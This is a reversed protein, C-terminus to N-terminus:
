MTLMQRFKNIDQMTLSITKDIMPVKLKIQGNGIEVDGLLGTDIVFPRTEMLSKTMDNLLPIIDVNGNEDAILKIVNTIKFVYSSVYLFIMPILSLGGLYNLVRTDINFYPLITNFFYMLALLMPIFKLIILEVKYLLKTIAKREEM